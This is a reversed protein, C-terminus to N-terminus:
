LGRRRKILLANLRAVHLFSRDLIPGNVYLLSLSYEDLVLTQNKIHHLGFDGDEYAMVM